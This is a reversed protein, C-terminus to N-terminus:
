DEGDGGNDTDNNEDRQKEAMEKEYVSMKKVKSWPMVEGTEPDVAPPPTAQQDSGGQSIFYVAVVSLLLLVGVVLIIIPAVFDNSAAGPEIRPSKPKPKVSLIM